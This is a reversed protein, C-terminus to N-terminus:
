SKIKPSFMMNIQRGESRAEQDLNGYASLDDLLRKVLVDSVDLHSMERRRKFFIVVKVKHGSELFAIIKKCKVKYDGVDTVPRFKVEKVAKVKPQNKTQRKREYRLHGYNLIKCVPPKAQPSVEVLDLGAEQAKALAESTKMLGINEGDDGILRVQPM